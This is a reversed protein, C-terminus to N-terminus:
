KSTCSTYVMTYLIFTHTRMYMLAVKAIFYRPYLTSKKRDRSPVNYQLKVTYTAYQVILEFDLSITGYCYQSLCVQKTRPDEEEQYMDIDVFYGSDNRIFCRAPLAKGYPTLRIVVCM